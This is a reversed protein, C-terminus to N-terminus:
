DARDSDAATLLRRSLPAASVGHVV